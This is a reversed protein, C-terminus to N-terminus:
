IIKCHLGLEEDIRDHKLVFAHLTEATITKQGNAISSITKLCVGLREAQKKYDMGSAKWQWVKHRAWDASVLSHAGLKRKSGDVALIKEGCERKMKKMPKGTRWSSSKLRMINNRDVGSLRALEEVGIGMEELKKIHAIVPATDMYFSVDEGWKVRAQKQKVKYQYARWLERCAACRCGRTYNNASPSDCRLLGRTAESRAERRKKEARQWKAGSRM